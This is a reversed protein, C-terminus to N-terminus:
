MSGLLMIKVGFRKEIDRMSEEITPKNWLLWRSWFGAKEYNNWDERSEHRQLYNLKRQENHHMTYDEYRPDGFHITKISDLGPIDLHIVIMWKKNARSSTTLAPM